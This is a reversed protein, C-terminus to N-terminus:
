CTMPLSDDDRRRLWREPGRAGRALELLVWTLDLRGSARGSNM